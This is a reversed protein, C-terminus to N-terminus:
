RIGFIGCGDHMDEQNGLLLLENFRRPGALQHAQYAGIFPQAPRESVYFWAIEDARLPLADIEPGIQGLMVEHAGGIRSTPITM